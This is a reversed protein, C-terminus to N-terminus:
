RIHGARAGALFEDRSLKGDKNTDVQAMASKFADTEAGEITGSSNKDASKFKAEAAADSAAPAGPKPAQTQALTAPALALAAVAAAALLM